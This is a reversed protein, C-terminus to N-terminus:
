IESRYEAKIKEFKMIINNVQNELDLWEDFTKPQYKRDAAKPPYTIGGKKGVFAKKQVLFRIFEKPYKDIIEVTIKKRYDPQSLFHYKDIIIGKVEKRYAKSKEDDDGIYKLFIFHLFAGRSSPKTLNIEGDKFYQPRDKKFIEILEDKGVNPLKEQIEQKSLRM